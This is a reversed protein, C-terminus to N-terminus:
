RKSWDDRLADWIWRLVLLLLGLEILFVLAMLLVICTQVLVNM